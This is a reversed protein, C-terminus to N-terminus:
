KSQTELNTERSSCKRKKYAVTKYVVQGQFTMEWANKLASDDETLLLKINWM